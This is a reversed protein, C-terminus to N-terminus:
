IVKAGKNFGLLGNLIPRNKNETDMENIYKGTRIYWM